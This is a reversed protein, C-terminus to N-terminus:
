FTLKERCPVDSNAMQLRLGVGEGTYFYDLSWPVSVPCKRAFIQLLGPDVTVFLFM